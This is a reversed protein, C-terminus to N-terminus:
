SAELDTLFIRSPHPKADGHVACGPNYHLGRSERRGRASAVSLRALRLAHWLNSLEVSPAAERVRLALDRHLQGLERAAEDLGQDTRVIAVRASM